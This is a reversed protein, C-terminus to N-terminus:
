GVREVEHSLHQLIVIKHLQLNQVLLGCLVVVHHVRAESLLLTLCLDLTLHEPASFGLLQEILLLQLEVVTVVLLADGCYEHVSHLRLAEVPAQLVVALSM